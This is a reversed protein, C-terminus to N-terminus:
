NWETVEYSSYKILYTASILSNKDSYESLSKTIYNNSNKDSLVIYFANNYNNFYLYSKSLMVGNSNILNQNSIDENQNMEFTNCEGNKITSILIINDNSTVSVNSINSDIFTENNSDFDTYFLNGNLDVRFLYVKNKPKFYVFSYSLATAYYSFDDSNLEVEAKSKKAYFLSNNNLYSLYFHENSEIAQYTIENSHNCIGWILLNNSIITIPSNDETKIKLYLKVSESKLPMYSKMITFQNYGAQLKRSSSFFTINNISLSIKITQSVPVNLEIQNQFYLAFNEITEFEAILLKDTNSFLLNLLGKSFCVFNNSNLNTSQKSSINNLKDELEATKNLLTKITDIM